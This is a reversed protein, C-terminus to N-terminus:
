NNMFNTLISIMIKEKPKHQRNNSKTFDLASGELFYQLLLRPMSNKKSTDTIEIWDQVRNISTNVRKAGRDEGDGTFTKPQPIRVGKLEQKNESDSEAMNNHKEETTRQDKEEQDSGEEEPNKEEQRQKESSEGADAFFVDSRYAEGPKPLCL